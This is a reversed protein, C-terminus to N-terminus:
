ETFISLKHAIRSSEIEWVIHEVSVVKLVKMPAKFNPWSVPNIIDGAHISLFPREAKFVVLVDDASGPEYIELHYQVNEQFREQM